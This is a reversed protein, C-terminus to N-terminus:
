KYMKVCRYAGVMIVNILIYPPIFDLFSHSFLGSILCLVVLALTDGLNVSFIGTIFVSMWFISQEETKKSLNYSAGPISYFIPLLHSLLHVLILGKILIRNGSNVYLINNQLSSPSFPPRSPHISLSFLVSLFAENVVYRSQLICRNIMRIHTM